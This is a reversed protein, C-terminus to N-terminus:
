CSFTIYKQSKRAANAVLVGQLLPRGFSTAWGVIVSWCVVLLRGLFGLFLQIPGRWVFLRVGQPSRVVDAGSIIDHSM